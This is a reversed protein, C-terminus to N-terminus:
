APQADECALATERKVRPLDYVKCFFGKSARWACNQGEACITSGCSCGEGTAPYAGCPPLESTMVLQLGAFLFVAILKSAKVNAVM